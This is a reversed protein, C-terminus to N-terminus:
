REALRASTVMRRLHEWGPGDDIRADFVTSLSRIIEDEVEHPDVPTGTERAISTVGADPIGCPIMNGFYNLDPDVNLAFGHYSVGRSIAVGIAAIKSGDVWVGPRAPDRSGDIGFPRLTTIITEELLHVYRRVSRQLRGLDLIVYVVIQGPGHFTMDGGRDVEHFVAGIERLRRDDVLLNARDGGWGTTYTPPHEILIALDPVDGRRRARALSRQMDWAELYDVRGARTVSISQGALFGPVSPTGTRDDTSRGTEPASGISRAGSHM